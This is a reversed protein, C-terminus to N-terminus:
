ATANDTIPGFTDKRDSTSCTMLMGMNRYGYWLRGALMESLGAM